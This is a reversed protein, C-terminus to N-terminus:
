PRYDVLVPPKRQNSDLASMAAQIIALLRGPENAPDAPFGHRFPVLLARPPLVDLAAERGFQIAVTALGLRELEAAALCM